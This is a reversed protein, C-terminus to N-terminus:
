AVHSHKNSMQKTTSLYTSNISKPFKMFWGLAALFSPPLEWWYGFIQEDKRVMFLGGGTSEGM